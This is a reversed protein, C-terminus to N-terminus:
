HMMGHMKFAQYLKVISCNTDNSKCSIQMMIDCERQISKFSNSHTIRIQKLAVLKNDSKRQFLYVKGFGGEGLTKEFVYMQTLSPNDPIMHPLYHIFGRTEIDKWIQLLSDILHSTKTSYINYGVDTSFEEICFWLKERIMFRVNLSLDPIFSNIATSSLELIDSHRMSKVNPPLKVHLLNAIDILRSMQHEEFTSYDNVTQKKLDQKNLSKLQRDQKKEKKSPTLAISRKRAAPVPKVRQRQITSSPKVPKSQIPTTNKLHKEIADCLSKKDLKTYAIHNHDCIAQLRRYHTSKCDSQKFNELSYKHVM